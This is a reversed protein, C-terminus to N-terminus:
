FHKSNVTKGDRSWATKENIVRSLTVPNPAARAERVWFMEGRGRICGSIDSATLTDTDLVAKPM